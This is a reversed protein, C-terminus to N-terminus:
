KDCEYLIECNSLDLAEFFRMSAARAAATAFAVPLGNSNYSLPSGINNNSFNRSLFMWIKNTRYISVKDDYVAGPLVLNGEDNYDFKYNGMVGNPVGNAHQKYKIRSIREQQDYEYETIGIHKAYTILAPGYNSNYYVSDRVIRNAEYVFRTWFQCSLPIAAPSYGIYDTLRGNNDYRFEYKLSGVSYATPTYSIPNGAANYEFTGTKNKEAESKLILQKIRCKVIAVSSDKRALERKCSMLATVCLIALLAKTFLQQM